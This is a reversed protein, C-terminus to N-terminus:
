GVEGNLAGNGPSDTRLRSEISFERAAPFGNTELEPLGSTMRDETRTTLRYFDWAAMLLALQREIHCTGLDVQLKVREVLQALSHTSDGREPGGAEQVAFEIKAALARLTSAIIEAEGVM